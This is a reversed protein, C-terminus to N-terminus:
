LALQQSVAPARLPSSAPIDVSLASFYQSYDVVVGSIHRKFLGSAAAGLQAFHRTSATVLDNQHTLPECLHKSQWEYRCRRALTWCSNISESMTERRFASGVDIRLAARM